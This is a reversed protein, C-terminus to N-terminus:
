NVEKVANVRPMIAEKYWSMLMSSFLSDTDEVTTVCPIKEM